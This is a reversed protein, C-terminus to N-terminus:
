EKMVGFPQLSPWSQPSPVASLQSLVLMSGSILFAAKWFSPKSITTNSSDLLSLVLPPPRTTEASM